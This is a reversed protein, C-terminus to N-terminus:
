VFRKVAPGEMDASSHQASSSAANTSCARAL